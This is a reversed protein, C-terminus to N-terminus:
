STLNHNFSLSFKYTMPLLMMSYMTTILRYLTSPTTCLNLVTCYIFETCYMFETCHLATCYSQCLPLHFKCCHCFFYIQVTKKKIFCDASTPNSTWCLWLNDHLLRFTCPKPIKFLMLKLLFYLTFILIAIWGLCKCCTRLHLPLRLKKLNARATWNGPKRFYM